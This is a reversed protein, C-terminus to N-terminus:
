KSLAKLHSVYVSINVSTKLTNTNIFPPQPPNNPPLRKVNSEESIPKFQDYREENTGDTVNIVTLIILSTNSSELGFGKEINVTDRPFTEMFILRFVMEGEDVSSPTPASNKYTVFSDKSIVENVNFFDFTNYKFNNNYCGDYAPGLYNIVNPIAKQVANIPEFKSKLSNIILKTITQKMSLLSRNIFYGESRRLKYNFTLIEFRLFDRM